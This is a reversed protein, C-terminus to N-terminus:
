GTELGVADGMELRLDKPSALLVDGDMKTTGVTPGVVEFGVTVDELSGVTTVSGSKIGVSIGDSFVVTVTRRLLGFRWRRRRRLDRFLIERFAL